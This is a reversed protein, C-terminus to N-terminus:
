QYKALVQQARDTANHSLAELNTVDDDYDAMRRWDRLQRMRNLVYYQRTQKLHQLLAGHDAGYGSPNFGSATCQNRLRCFAAYYARSIACRQRAEADLGAILDGPQCGVLKSALVYYNNWDFPM